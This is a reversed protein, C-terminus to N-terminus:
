LRSVRRVMALGNCCRWEGSSSSACHGLSINAGARGAPHELWPAAGEIGFAEHLFFLQSMGGAAEGADLDVGSEAGGLLRLTEGAPGSFGRIIELERDFARLQDGM